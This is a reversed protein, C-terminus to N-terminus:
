IEKGPSKRSRSNPKPGELKSYDLAEPEELNMLVAEPLPEDSKDTKAAEVAEDLGRDRKANEDQNALWATKFTSYSTPPDFEQSGETAPLIPLDIKENIMFDHLFDGLAVPSAPQEQTVMREREKLTRKKEDRESSISVVPYPQDRNVGKFRERGHYEFTGGFHGHRAAQCLIYALGVSATLRESSANKAIRFGTDIGTGLFDYQHPNIDAGAEFVETPLDNNQSAIKGNFIEISINEAPFAALWGAGKVDLPVDNAEFSKGIEELAQIFATVCCAVHEVSNVRCCFLIEDGITKWVKPAKASLDGASKGTTTEAFKSLLAKPFQQYFQRFQQV